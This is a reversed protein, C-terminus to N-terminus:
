GARKLREVGEWEKALVEDGAGIVLMSLVELTNHANVQYGARRGAAAVKDRAADFLEVVTQPYRQTADLYAMAERPQQQDVREFPDIQEIERLTKTKANALAAQPDQKAVNIGAYLKTYPTALLEDMEIGGQLHYVKVTQMLKICTDYGVAVREQVFSKFSAHGLAHLEEPRSDFRSELEVLMAGLVVNAENVVRGLTETNSVLAATGITSLDIPGKGLQGQVLQAINALAARSPPQAAVVELAPPEGADVTPHEREGQKRAVVEAYLEDGLFARAEDSLLPEKDPWRPPVGLKDLENMILYAERKTAGRETLWRRGIRWGQTRSWELAEDFLSQRYAPEM